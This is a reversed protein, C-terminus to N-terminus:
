ELSHGDSSEQIPVLRPLNQRTSRSGNSGDGGIRDVIECIRDLYRQKEVANTGIRQSLPVKSFWDAPDRVRKIVLTKIMSERLISRRSEWNDMEGAIVKDRFERLAQFAEAVDLAEEVRTSDVLSSGNGNGNAADAQVESTTMRDIQEPEAAAPGYVPSVVYDEYPRAPRMRLEEIQRALRETQFNPNDFWDTSWVRLIEWGLERLIEERLRDRDRASKSSHYAAGDCEIGVIFKGSYDPHRVGLDIKFGSVGVQMEVDFGRRRLRDAVEVEFDSDPQDGVSEIAAKGKEEAYKLYRHLVHVGESSTQIPKIDDSNMSTYLVVRIRARTFLVNLRRHGQKGNIPGFRQLVEKKGSKPGYTMSIFIFDREDGQMNELNKVLLPEGKAAVKARYMEVLTDDAELRRLEQLILDRQERNIAVLGLTPINEQETEAFRRMFRIAEEAIRQAEAPNRRADYSGGVRVLDVSFLNPRATPFTILEGRYFEKNSFAILSECRSRYHWKLMRVQRFAKQCAELISEDEIDEFDEDDSDVPQVEDSRSFFDTPPLQKQDGVVIVQQARLLGGLADEPRMQSAEDIVLLDFSIQKPPLFKSLSLPSMMFCPKMCQIAGSARTMLGRVRTSTKEKGFENLLLEMETWKKKPGVRSGTPPKGGVLASRVIERDADIKRRDRDAFEHRKASLRMGATNSLVPDTRRAKEARRYAIIGTVIPALQSPPLNCNEFQSVLAGLGNAELVRRQDLLGLFETLEDRRSLLDDLKRALESPSESDFGAIDYTIKVDAISSQLRGIETKALTTVAALRQRMPSATPSLLSTCVSPPAIASRITTVWALSERTRAIADGNTVLDGDTLALPHKRFDIEARQKRLEAEAAERLAGIPNRLADLVNQPDVELIRRARTDSARVNNLISEIHGDHLRTRLDSALSKFKDAAPGADSLKALRDNDLECFRQFVERGHPRALLLERAKERLSFISAIQEFPTEFGKWWAGLVRQHNLDLLFASCAQIHSALDRLDSPKLAVGRPYGLKEALATIVKSDGAFKGFIKGVGGKSLMGAVTTLEEAMPWRQSGCSPYKSRWRREAQTLSSWKTYVANFADVGDAPTWRFWALTQKTLRRGVIIAICLTEMGEIPFPRKLRLADVVSLFGELLEKLTACDEIQKRVWIKAAEPTRDSIGAAAALQDLEGILRFRDEDLASLDPLRQSSEQATDLAVKLTILQEVDESAARCVRILLDVAPATSPLMRELEVLQQLESLRTVGIDATQRVTDSAARAHARMAALEEFFSAIINLRAKEGFSLARWPSAAPSGFTSSYTELMRAYLSVEGLLAAYVTPNEILRSPVDIAKFSELAEGIESRARLSRWILSFPTEGDSDEAHLSTLYAAIARRSEEWTADAALRSPVRGAHQYGLKHRTKLSEIVQRTSAKGAHLELCFEGLGARDLRRKVVDLAAQKEAMFLVTKNQALANAIINTITQPKGTGPPGHVVLNMGKMGDVLASHQSADADHILIPAFRDVEPDDIAYDDPASLISYGDGAVETGTLVPGILNDTVPHNPWNEPDLDAYMAFRGFSFHGLTLWRRVKWNKLGEVADTVRQFYTEISGVEEDDEEIEPLTRNFDKQLRKQLSLNTDASEATAAISFIKRGRGNKRKNVSVPLLLLPAFHKKSSDEAEYWELFGFALFLTSLGMEQEALRADDSIKEMIGDLTEKWKLTHLRRTSHEPKTPKSPLELSPEIEHERAHDAPNIAKRTPRPQLGLQNRLRDRLDREAEALAFEDDRGTSELAKVKTLYELDLARAHDLASLFEETREDAPIEDPDPLPVLDFASDEGVLKRYVEEPVADVIQLLRKSTARHKFSLMPNRLSLDLLRERLNGYVTALRSQELEHM